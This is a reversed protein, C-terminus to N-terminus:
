LSNPPNLRHMSTLYYELVIDQSYIVTFSKWIAGLIGVPAKENCICKSKDASSRNIKLKFGPPCEALTADVGIHLNLIATRNPSGM